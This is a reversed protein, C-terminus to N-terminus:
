RQVRICIAKRKEDHYLSQYNSKSGITVGLRKEALICVTEAEPRLDDFACVYVTNINGSLNDEIRNLYPGYGIELTERKAVLLISVSIHEGSFQLKTHESPERTTFSHLFDVFKDCECIISPLQVKEPFLDSAMKIFEALLIRTFFGLEDIAEVKHYVDKLGPKTDLEEKLIKGTFYRLATKSNSLSLCQKTLVLDVSDELSKDIYNKVEHLHHEQILYHITNVLNRGQERYYGMKVIIRNGKVFSEPAVSQPKVWKIEIKRDTLLGPIQANVRKRALQFRGLIDGSVSKKQFFTGMWGIARFLHGSVIQAKEPHYLYYCLLSTPVLPLLQWIHNLALSLLDDVM